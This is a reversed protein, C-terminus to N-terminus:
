ALAAGGEATPAPRLWYMLARKVNCALAKFYVALKVRGEGRVRLKRMGHARKLESNTAEIGARVAYRKPFEPSAEQQRLWETAKAPDTPCSEAPPEYEQGAKPKAPAPAPAVLRVGHGSLTAANQGSSFGTDATVEKPKQGAAELAEVVPVTAKADSDCARTVEVHTIMEPKEGNGCSEAVQVAYGKGKHGSYTANADHPSQLSDSGVEKAPKLEAAASGDGHDDEDPGPDQAQPLATCQEKFLRELLKWGETKTVGEVKEFGTVLRGVDRAVVALRRPGEARRADKYHSEEGHRKLLGVPLAEYRKADVRKVERLFVRITECFVGLRTLVAFNSLLHTSDLRQREVSVGLAGTLEDTVCRFALGAKERKVLKVRFNHLTKQCLHLEHPERGLAYWWLVDFELGYLAEEDTLDKMEKLILVALVLEVPRNPRGEEPDFLDAFEGEVKRLIPLARRRFAGAWSKECRERKEPPLLGGADFLPKQPNSPRYMLLRETERRM